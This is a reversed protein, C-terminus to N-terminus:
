GKDVPLNEKEWALMGGSLTYVNEFGSKILLRAAPESRNGARCTVVITKSKYKTLQSQDKTLTKLPLNLAHPIHGKKFEHPEGVDVVLADDRTLQPFELVSVSRVGAAKKRIPDAILLGLIVVLAAFLYWNKIIFEISMSLFSAAAPTYPSRRSLNGTREPWLL